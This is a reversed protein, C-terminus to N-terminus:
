SGDDRRVAEPAGYSHILIDYFPILEGRDTIGFLPSYATYEIWDGVCHHEARVIVFNGMLELLEEDDVVELLKGSIRFRGVRGEERLKM